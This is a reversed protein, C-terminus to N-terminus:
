HSPQDGDQIDVLAGILQLTGGTIPEFKLIGSAKRNPNEPLWWEGVREFSEM